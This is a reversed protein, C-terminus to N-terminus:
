KNEGLELNNIGLLDWEFVREIQKKLIVLQYSINAQNSKRKSFFKKKEKSRIEKFKVIEKNKNDTLSFFYDLCAIKTKIIKLQLKYFDEVNNVNGMNIIEKKRKLNESEDLHFYSILSTKLSIDAKTLDQFKNYIRYFHNKSVKLLIKGNELETIGQKKNIIFILAMIHSNNSLKYQYRELVELEIKINEIIEKNESLEKASEPKILVPIEKLRDEPELESINEWEKNAKKIREEREAQKEAKELEVTKKNINDAVDNKNKAIAQNIDIEDSLNTEETGNEMLQATEQESSQLLGMIKETFIKYEESDELIKENAIIIKIYNTKKQYDDYFVCFTNNFITKVIEVVEDFKELFSEDLLIQTHEKNKKEKIEENIYKEKSRNLAYPELKKVYKIKIDIM